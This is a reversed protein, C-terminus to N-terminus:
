HDLACGFGAMQGGFFNFNFNFIPAAGHFHQISIVSIGGVWLNRVGVMWLMRLSGELSSIFYGYKGVIELALPHWRCHLFSEEATLTCQHGLLLRCPSQSCMCTGANLPLMPSINQLACCRRPHCCCILPPAPAGLLPLSRRVHSDRQPACGIATLLRAGGECECDWGM